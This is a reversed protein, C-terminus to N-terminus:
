RATILGRSTVPTPSFKVGDIILRNPLSVQAVQIAAGGQAAKAPAILSTESTNATSTGTANKATVQVLLTHAVDASTAVYTTGTAGAISPCNRGQADCRLWQYAYSTPSGTWSGHSATLVSGDRASGSISPLSTNSPAATAQSQSAAAVALASVAEAGILVLLR